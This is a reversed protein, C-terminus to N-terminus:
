SFSFTYRDFGFNNDCCKEVNAACETCSIWGCNCCNCHGNDFSEKYNRPVICTIVIFLFLFVIYIM